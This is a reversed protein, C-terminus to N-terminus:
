LPTGPVKRLCKGALLLLYKWGFNLWERRINVGSQEQAYVADMLMDSVKAGIRSLRYLMDSEFFYSKDLRDLPLKCLCDSRIATFGYASDNIHTFGTLWRNAMSALRNAMQRIAPM